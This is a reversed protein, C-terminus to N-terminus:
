HAVQRRVGSTILQRIKARTFPKESRPLSRFRDEISGEEYGTCVITFVGEAILSDLVPDSMIGDLNLDVIAIDIANGKAMYSLASAVNTEWRVKSGLSELYSTLGIAILADDEVILVTRDMLCHALEAM